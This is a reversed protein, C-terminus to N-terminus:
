NTKGLILDITTTTGAAVTGTFTIQGSATTWGLDTTVNAPTGFTCEIVRMSSTIRADTIYMASPGITGTLHLAEFSLLETVDDEVSHGSDMLIDDAVPLPHQHDERSFSDSTGVVGVTDDPLPTATGPSGAGDVGFRTVSYFTIPSGNNWELITRTWLFQGPTVYPPTDVWTGTPITTGSASAQYTVANTELTAPDGTAGKWQYWTYDTYHTPATSSLGYYVGIFNDPSDGMDSDATPYSASYKVWFYTQDGQDGKVGNTVSIDTYTEDAYTMRWVDVVPNTGSSSVKVFSQVGGHGDAYSVLWNELIQGTLKKAEGSQELVFLDTSGVATAANLQSIAKDAM